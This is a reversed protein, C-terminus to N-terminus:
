IEGKDIQKLVEIIGDINDLEWALNNGDTQGEKLEAVCYGGDNLSILNTKSKNSFQHCKYGLWDEMKPHTIIINTNSKNSFLLNINSASSQQIINKYSKFIQIKGIIDYDMLEIIDYGLESKIKDILELENVLERSHYWEKSNYWGRKITDQRSIYCGNSKVEIPSIKSATEIIREMILEDGHSMPFGYLTNPIILNSIKYRIHKKLIIIEINKDKYYLELWQKIHSINGEEQWFDELIALKLNPLEDFYLCKGFFNFFSHAYNLSTEDYLFFISEDLLEDYSEDVTITNTYIPTNGSVDLKLGNHHVEVRVLDLDIHKLYAKPYLTVFDNTPNITKPLQINIKQSEM